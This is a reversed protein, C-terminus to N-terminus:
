SRLFEDLVRAILAQPLLAPKRDIVFCVRTGESTYRGEVPGLPTRMMFRGLELDGEFVGGRARTERQARELAAPLDAVRRELRMSSPM